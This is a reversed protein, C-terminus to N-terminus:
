LLIILAILLALSTFFVIVSKLVPDSNKKNFIFSFGLSLLLSLFIKILGSMPKSIMHKSELIFSVGFSIGVVLLILIIHNNLLTKIINGWPIPKKDKKLDKKNSFPNSKVPLRQSNSKKNKLERNNDRFISKSYKSRNTPKRDTKKKKNLFQDSLRNKNINEDNSKRYNENNKKFSDNLSNSNIENKPYILQSNDPSNTSIEKNPQNKENLSNKENKLKFQKYKRMLVVLEGRDVLKINKSSAYNIAPKSFRSSTVIVIKSALNQSIREVEKLQNIGVEYDQNYNKVSVAVDFDTLISPLVGYIDIIGNSTKFDKYVKFKNTKMLTAIFNVLQPKKM